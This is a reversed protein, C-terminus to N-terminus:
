FVATSVLGLILGILITLVGFLLYAAWTPVGYEDLLVNMANQSEFILVLNSSFFWSLQNVRLNMSVKYFQSILTMQFSAPSQWSSIPELAEWRKEEVFGLFEDKTRPGKYQRFKGEKIHYITPLATILILIWLNNCKVSLSEQKTMWVQSWSGEVSDLVRRLTWRGLRSEWTMAGHRLTRGCQSCIEVLRVGRLSAPLKFTFNVTLFLAWYTWKLIM